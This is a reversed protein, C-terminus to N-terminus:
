FQIAKKIISYVNKEEGSCLGFSPYSYLISLTVNIHWANIRINRSLKYFHCKSGIFLSSDTEQCIFARHSIVFVQLLRPRLFCTRPFLTGFTMETLSLASCCVQLCEVSIFSGSWMDLWWAVSVLALRSLLSMALAGLCHLPINIRGWSVLFPLCLRVM